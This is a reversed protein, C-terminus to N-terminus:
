FLILPIYISHLWSCVFRSKDYGFIDRIAASYDIEDEGDDIFDDLDEDDEEDSDIYRGRQPMSKKAKDKSSNGMLRDWASVGASGNDLAAKKAPPTDDLNCCVILFHVPTRSTTAYCYYISRQNM